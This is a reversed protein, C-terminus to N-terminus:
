FYKRGLCKYHNHDKKTHISVLTHWNATFRKQIYHALKSNRPTHSLTHISWNSLLSGVFVHWISVMGYKVAHTRLKNKTPTTNKKRKEKSPSFNAYSTYTIARAEIRSISISIAMACGIDFITINSMWISKNTHVNNLDRPHTHSDSLSFFVVGGIHTRAQTHGFRENSTYAM